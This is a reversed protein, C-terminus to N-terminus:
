WPSKKNEKSAYEIISAKCHSFRQGKQTNTPPLESGGVPPDAMPGGSLVVRGWLKSMEVNDAVLLARRCIM